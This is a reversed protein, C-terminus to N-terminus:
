FVWRGMGGRRGEGGKVRRRVGGEWEGSCALPEELHSEADDESWSALEVDSANTDQARKM